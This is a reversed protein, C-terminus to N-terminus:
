RYRSREEKPAGFEEVETRMCGRLAKLKSHDTKCYPQHKAPSHPCFNGPVKTQLFTCFFRQEYSSEWDRM